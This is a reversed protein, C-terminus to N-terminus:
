KNIIKKGGTEPSYFNHTHTHTHARAYRSIFPIVTVEKQICTVSPMNSTVSHHLLTVATHCNCGLTACVTCCCSEYSNIQIRPCTAINLQISVVAHQKTTPNPNPNPNPNSKTDPQNTTICVYKHSKRNYNDCQWLYTTFYNIYRFATTCEQSIPCL